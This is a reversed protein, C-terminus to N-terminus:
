RHGNAMKGIKIELNQFNHQQSLESHLPTWTQQRGDLPGVALPIISNKLPPIKSVPALKTKEEGNTIMPYKTSFRYLKEVRNRLVDTVDWTQNRNRLRLLPDRIPHLPSRSITNREKNSERSCEINIVTWKTTREQRGGPPSRVLESDTKERQRLLYEPVLSCFSAVPMPLLSLVSPRRPKLSNRNPSMEMSKEQSAGSPSHRRNRLQIRKELERQTKDSQSVSQTPAPHSGTTGESSETSWSTVSDRRPKPVPIRNERQRNATRSMVLRGSLTKAPPPKTKPKVTTDPIDNAPSQTATQNNGTSIANKNLNGYEDKSTRKTVPRSEYRGESTIACVTCTYDTNPTLRRAAYSRKTGLYIPKGNMCLEYNFFRGLPAKPVEWTIFIESRGIVYLTLKGPAHDGKNLTRAVLFVKQSQGRSTCACVSFNYNTSPALSGVICSLESTTEIPVENRYVIYCKISVSTDVPPSWNLKVQTATRGIVQFDLPCGPLPEEVIMTIPSDPSYDGETEMVVRLHHEQGPKSELFLYSCSPGQYILMEDDFLNYTVPLGSDPKHEEWGVWVSGSELIKTKPSSPQPLRKLRKLTNEVEELLEQEATHSSALNKLITELLHHQRLRVVGPPHSSLVNVTMAAFWCSEQEESHLLQCLSDIVQPFCHSRLVHQHGEQDMALCTLAFCANRSEGADGGSIMAELAPIMDKAEQLCIVRRRGIDTDCLQGLAFAANLGCGSDDVHLSAILKRLIVDSKPHDLLRACGESCLCIRALVLASNSSAWDNLSGLLATINEIIFDCDPSALIWRRGCRNDALTGLAGAANMVAEADEWLLMAALRGLLNCDASREALEVLMVALTPHEALTGLIFAVNSCLSTNTDELLVCMAEMYQNCRTDELLAEVLNDRGVMQLENVVQEVGQLVVHPLHSLLQTLISSM